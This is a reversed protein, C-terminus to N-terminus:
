ECPAVGEATANQGEGQPAHNGSPPDQETVSRRRHRLRLLARGDSHERELVHACLWFVLVERVPHM